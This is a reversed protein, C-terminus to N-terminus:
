LRSGLGTGHTTNLRHVGNTPQFLGRLRPLWAENAKPTYQPSNLEVCNLMPIHAAFLFAHIASYGPNTLDQLSLTMGHKRAWAAAVLAFSHGKCTKLALGSWGQTRALPLLELDTLGDDLLVPKLSTVARWDHAHVKIDRGTPQELYILAEFAGDDIARLHQLYDLVSAADPNAENSDASLVPGRIGWSRAARYVEVTRTADALPDKGLIKLKFAEYGGRKVRGAVETELNDRASVIWWAKLHQSPYPALVRRIAACATEGGFHIDALPIPAEEDYFRFASRNLAIGAADHIAADFPSACMARALSPPGAEQCAAHHLRLGHELPHAPTGCWSPLRESIGICIKRLVADRQDHGLAPDPWAWLDSLYISGRGTAQLGNADVTVVARAETIHSILGSSLQLPKEFARPLFEVRAELVRTQQIPRTSM